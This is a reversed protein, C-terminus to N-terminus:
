FARSGKLKVDSLRVESGVREMFGAEVLTQVANFWLSSAVFEYDDVVHQFIRLLRELRFAKKSTKRKAVVQKEHLTGVTVASRRQKSRSNDQAFLQSDRTKPVASALYAAVVLASDYVPQTLARAGHAVLRMRQERQEELEDAESRRPRKAKPTSPSSASTPGSPLTPQQLLLEADQALVADIFPKAAAQMDAVRPAPGSRVAAGGPVFSRYGDQYVACVTALGLLPLANSLSQTVHTVWEERHRPPDVISAARSRIRPDQTRLVARCAASSFAPFHLDLVRLHEVHPAVCGHWDHRSVCVVQVRRELPPDQGLLLLWAFTSADLGRQLAEVHDLVIYARADGGRSALLQAVDAEFAAAGTCRKWPRWGGARGVVHGALQGLIAELLTAASRPGLAAHEVCNVLARCLPAGTLQEQAELAAHVVRSKGTGPGGWVWVPCAVPHQFLWTRLSMLQSEREVWESAVRAYHADGDEDSFDLPSAEVVARM